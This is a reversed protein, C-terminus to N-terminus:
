ARATAYRHRWVHHGGTRSRRPETLTWAEVSKEALCSDAIFAFELLFAMKPKM